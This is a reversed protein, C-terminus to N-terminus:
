LSTYDSLRWSEEVGADPEDLMLKERAQTTLLDTLRLNPSQCAMHLSSVRDYIMSKFQTETVAIVSAGELRVWSGDPLALVAHRTVGQTVYMRHNLEEYENMLHEERDNM